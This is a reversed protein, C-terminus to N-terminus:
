SIYPSVPEARENCLVLGGMQGCLLVGSCAPVSEALEVILGRTEEVIRVPDLEHFLPDANNIRPPSKRRSVSRIQLEDVEVVAAKIFTTGIDVAIFEM